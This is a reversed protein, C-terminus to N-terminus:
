DVRPHAEFLRNLKSGDILFCRRMSSVKARWKYYHVMHINRNKNCPFDDKNYMFSDIIKYVVRGGTGKQNACFYITAQCYRNRVYETYESMKQCKRVMIPMCIACLAIYWSM